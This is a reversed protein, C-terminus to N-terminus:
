FYVPVHNPQQNDARIERIVKAPVGGVVTHPPVDRTVVAGAAVVSGRGVRVGDTIVAASGIWVDDEVIIGQGTIGQETFPRAPDDFRHNVAILQSFPSTYVWDGIEIGGQGRLMSFEGILSNKGIRIGAHPLDRFNYVHLVAHHMVITDEGIQIGEPCAHLYVGEDLYVGNALSIHSAHRLRVNKEIAATGNMRLILRYFLARLAIGVVTPIWSLLLLVTQELIYRGWGDAQRRVYVDLSGLLSDSQPRARNIPPPETM